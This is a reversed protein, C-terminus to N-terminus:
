PGPAVWGLTGSLKVTQGVISDEKLTFRTFKITRATSNLTVGTTPCDNDSSVDENSCVYSDTSPTPAEYEVYSVSGDTKSYRVFVTFDSSQGDITVEYVGDGVDDYVDTNAVDEATFTGNLSSTTADSVVLTGLPTLAEGADGGGGCGALSAALALTAMGFLSKLALM